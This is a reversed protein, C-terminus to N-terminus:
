DLFFEKRQEPTLQRPMIEGAYALLDQTTAFAPWVRAKGDASATVIRRGDPAYAASVFDIKHPRGRLVGVEEGTVADWIRGTNDNSATVVRNGDPSFAATFVSGDPTSL